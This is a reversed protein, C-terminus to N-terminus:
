KSELEIIRNELEQIKQALVNIVENFIKDLDDISDVKINEIKKFEEELNIRLESM